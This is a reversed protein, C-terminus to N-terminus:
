RGYRVDAIAGQGKDAEGPMGQGAGHISRCQVLFPAGCAKGYLLPGGLQVVRGARAKIRDAPWSLADLRGFQKCIREHQAIFKPM